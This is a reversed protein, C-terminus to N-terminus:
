IKKVLLCKNQCKLYQNAYKSISTGYNAESDGFIDIKSAVKTSNEEVIKFKLRYEPEIVTGLQCRM